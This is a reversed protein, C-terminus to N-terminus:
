AVEQSFLNVSDPVNTEVWEYLLRRAEELPADILSEWVVSIAGLWNVPRVGGKVDSPQIAGGVLQIDTLHRVEPRTLGRSRLIGGVACVTCTPIDHWWGMWGLPETLIAELAHDKSIYM